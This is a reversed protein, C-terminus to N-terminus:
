LLDAPFQCFLKLKAPTWPSLTRHYFPSLRFGLFPDKMIEPFIRLGHAVLHDLLRHLIRHVTDRNVADQFTKLFISQDVANETFVAFGIICKAVVTGRVVCVIVEMKLARVAFLDFADLVLNHNWNWLAIRHFAQLQSSGPNTRVARLRRGSNRGFGSQM